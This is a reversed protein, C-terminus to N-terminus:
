TDRKRPHQGVNCRWPFFKKQCSCRRQLNRWTHNLLYICISGNNSWTYTCLTDTTSLETPLASEKLWSPGRNLDRHPCKMISRHDLQNNFQHANITLPNKISQQNISSGMPRIVLVRLRVMYASLSWRFFQMVHVYQVTPWRIGFRPRYESEIKHWDRVNSLRVSRFGSM